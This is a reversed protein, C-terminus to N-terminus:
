PQFEQLAVAIADHLDPKGSALAFPVCGFMVGISQLKEADLKGCGFGRTVMESVQKWTTAGSAVPVPPVEPLPPLDPVKSPPLDPIVLPAEAGPMAAIAKIQQTVEAYVADPVNKRRKWRGDKQTKEKNSSHIREDWPIGEADVDGPKYEPTAPPVEPATQHPEPLTADPEGFAAAIVATIRAASDKDTDIIIQM